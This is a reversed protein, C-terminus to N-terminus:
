AARRLLYDLEEKIDQLRYLREEYRLRKELEGKRYPMEERHAAAIQAVECQLERVRENLRKDMPNADGTWRKPHCRRRNPHSVNSRTSASLALIWRSVQALFAKCCMAVPNSRRV